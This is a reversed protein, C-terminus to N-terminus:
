ASEPGAHRAPQLRSELGRTMAPTEPSLGLPLRRAMGITGLLLGAASLTIVTDWFMAAALVERINPETRTFLPALLSGAAALFNWSAAGPELAPNGMVFNVFRYLPLPIFIVVIVAVSAII